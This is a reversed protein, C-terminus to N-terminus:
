PHVYCPALVGVVAFVFIMVPTQFKNAGSATGIQSEYNNCTAKDTCCNRKKDADTSGATNGNKSADKFKGAECSVTVGLCKADDAICCGDSTTCTNMACNTTDANAIKKQGAACSASSCKAKATCCNTKKNADSIGATHGAKATDLFKSADCTISNGGCKLTDQTCCTGVDADACPAQGCNIEAPSSKLKWGIAGCTRAHTTGMALAIVLAFIMNSTM